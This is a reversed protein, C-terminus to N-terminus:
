ENLDSIMQDYATKTMLSNLESPNSMKIEMLWGGEFPEKNLLETSDELEDNITTITGSVPMYFDVENVNKLVPFSVLYDDKEFVAGVETLDVFVVDGLKEQEYDTIGIRVVDEYLEKVWLHSDSFYTGPSAMRFCFTAECFFLMCLVLLKM